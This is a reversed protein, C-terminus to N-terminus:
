EKGKRDRLFDRIEELLRESRPAPPPAPSPPSPTMARRLTNIAKVMMFVCVAIILFNLITQLFAGYRLAAAPIDGEAPRLPIELDEFHTAGLLASLPPMLVDKVLSNIVKGFEGGIIVGVALDIVNGRVAFERFERLWGRVM